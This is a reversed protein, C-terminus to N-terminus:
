GFSLCFSPVSAAFPGGCACGCSQEEQFVFRIRGRDRECGEGTRRKLRRPGQGPEQADLKGHGIEASSHQVRTKQREHLLRVRNPGRACCASQDPSLRALPGAAPEVARCRCEPGRGLLFGVRGTQSQGHTRESSWSASRHPTM